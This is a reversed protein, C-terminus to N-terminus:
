CYIKIRLHFYKRLSIGYKLTNNLGAQSLGAAALTPIVLFDRVCGFQALCLVVALMKCHSRPQFRVSSISHGMKQSWASGQRGLIGYRYDSPSGAGAIDGLEWVDGSERLDQGM